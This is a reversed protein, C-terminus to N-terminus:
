NKKRTRNAKPSIRKMQAKQLVVSKVQKHHVSLYCEIECLCTFKLHCVFSRLTSVTPTLRHNWPFLSSRIEKGWFGPELVSLEPLLRQSWTPKLTCDTSVATLVKWALEEASLNGSFYLTRTFFCLNNEPTVQLKLNQFCLHWFPFPKNICLVYTLLPLCPFKFSVEPNWGASFTVSLHLTWSKQM